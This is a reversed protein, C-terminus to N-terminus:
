LTEFLFLVGVRWPKSTSETPLQFFPSLTSNNFLEGLLIDGVLLCIPVRDKHLFTGTSLEFWNLCCKM